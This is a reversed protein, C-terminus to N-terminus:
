RSASIFAHNEESSELPVLPARRDGRELYPGCLPAMAPPSPLPLIKRRKPMRNARCATRHHQDPAFRSLIAAAISDVPTTSNRALSMCSATRALRVRRVGPIGHQRDGAHALKSM